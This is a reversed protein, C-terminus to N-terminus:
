GSIGWKTKLLELPFSMVADQSLLWSPISGGPDSQVWYSVTGASNDLTWTGHNYPTYVADLHANLASAYPGSYTSGDFTHKVLDWQVVAKTATLTVAKLAIVYQRSKILANGGTRQYVVTYGDSRVELTKCDALAPVGMYSATKPYHSGDLIAGVFDSPTISVGHTSVTTSMSKYSASSPVLEMSPSAFAPVALSLALTLFLSRLM